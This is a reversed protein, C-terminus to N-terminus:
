FTVKVKLYIEDKDKISGFLNEGKGDLIFAGLSLEVNDSFYYVVEPAYVLGYNNEVDDWNNIAIAGGIPVVKLEDNLFKKELRFSFYDNLTGKGREHIFGRIYQTNFYLGNKFTYDGGLVFKLYPEDDLATTQITDMQGPTIFSPSITIMSVKKPYTLAGEGWVGVSGISGAFDGGIVGVEPYMLVTSIDMTGMTDVPTFTVNSAIPFDDQGKFYSLSVDYTFLNSAVKLAYQSSKSITRDPLIVVDSLYRAILGPPLEMPPAFAGSFDGSPLTAPTFIPVFIGNVTLNDRWYYNANIANTGLRQGFNYIDELDDPSINSTPNFADATGWSVIQRGIRVDLNESGFGYLDVYAERFELGWRYVKNKEPLQLDSSQNVDPFGFGRLRIESFYHYQDSPAGELQLNLRNENWSFENNETRLRNDTQLYGNISVEEQGILTGIIMITATALLNRKKM